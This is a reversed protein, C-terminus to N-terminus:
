GVLERYRSDFTGTIGEPDTIILTGIYSMQIQLVPPSTHRTSLVAFKACIGKKSTHNPEQDFHTYAFHGYHAEKLEVFMAVGRGM